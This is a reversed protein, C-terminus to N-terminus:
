AADVVRLFYDVLADADGRLRNGNRRASDLFGEIDLGSERVAADDRFWDDLQDADVEPHFQVGFTRGIRFAQVAKDSHALVTARQPLLSHDYHFQFWPGGVPFDPDDSTVEFFGVEGEPAREVTGGFHRCLMQSGFCIGFVPIDREIAEAMAALEDNLWAAQVARDYVSDNSGLILLIDVEDLASPPAGVGVLEVSVEYGRREFAERILGPHDTVHHRWVRVHSM